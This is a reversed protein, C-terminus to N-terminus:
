ARVQSLVLAMKVLSITSSLRARLTHRHEQGQPLMYIRHHRTHPRIDLTNINARPAPMQFPLGWREHAIMFRQQCLADTERRFEMRAPLKRM